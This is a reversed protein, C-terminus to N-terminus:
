RTTVGTGFSPFNSLHSPSSPPVSSLVQHVKAGGGGTGLHKQYELAGDQGTTWRFPLSGEANMASVVGPLRYKIFRIFHGAENITRNLAGYKRYLPQNLISAHTKLRTEPGILALLPLVPCFRPIHSTDCQRGSNRM